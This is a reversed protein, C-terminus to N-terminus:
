RCALLDRVALGEPKSPFDDKPPFTKLVMELLDICLLSRENFPEQLLQRYVLHRTGASFPVTPWIAVDGWDPSPRAAAPM